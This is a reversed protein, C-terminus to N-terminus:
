STMALRLASELLRPLREQRLVFTQKLHRHVAKDWLHGVTGFPLSFEIEDTLLTGLRGQAIEPRIGHRHRFFEFPGRVQVDRFHSYWVFETIRGVWHLRVPMYSVPRFSLDFQSGVGASLQATTWRAGADTPGAPPPVIELDELRMRMKDPMLATLNHPNALFAFALDVTFPIWQATVFRQLM